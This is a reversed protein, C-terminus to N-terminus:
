IKRKKKIEEEEENEKEKEEEEEEEEEEDEEEESEEELGKIFDDLSDFNEKLIECGGFSDGYFYIHGYRECSGTSFRDQDHIWELIRAKKRNIVEENYDECLLSIFYDDLENEDMKCASLLTIEKNAQSTCCGDIIKFEILIKM